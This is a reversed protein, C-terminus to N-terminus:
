RHVRSGSAAQAPRRRRLMSPDDQVTERGPPHRVRFGKPDVYKAAWAM